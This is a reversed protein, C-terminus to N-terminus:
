RPDAGVRVMLKGTNGGTYLLRLAAAAQEIGEVQHLRHRLRGTQMWGALEARVAPFRAAHDLVVFGRMSLRRMIINRFLYPGPVPESSNYSAILGCVVVRGGNRMAALGADLLEGGVNEFHLDVGQPALARLREAVPESRYDILHDYGFGRALWALKEAGGVIGVTRAGHLQAIQGVLMGVAGAAATVVVTEGARLQGIDSLGILATPGAVTLVGFADALPLGYTEIRSFGAGPAVCRESWSGLGSVLDGERFDAHRSRLVEAAIFGRMPEGPRVPEMYSDWDSMWVRNTADLSLYVTRLLLEGPGPEALPTECLVLTDDDPMGVPRRVLIWGRANAISM